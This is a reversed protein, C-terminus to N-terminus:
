LPPQHFPPATQIFRQNRKSLMNDFRNLRHQLSLIKLFVSNKEFRRNKLGGRFPLATEGSSM